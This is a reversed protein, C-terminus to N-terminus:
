GYSYEYKRIKYWQKLKLILKNESTKCTFCPNTHSIGYFVLSQGCPISFALISVRVKPIYDPLCGGCLEAAQNYPIVSVCVQFNFATNLFIICDCTLKFPFCSFSVKGGKAILNNAELELQQQKSQLETQPATGKYEVFPRVFFWIKVKSLGPSIFNSMKDFSQSVNLFRNQPFNISLHTGSALLALFFIM